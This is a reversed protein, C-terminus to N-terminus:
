MANIYWKIDAYCIKEKSLLVNFDTKMNVSETNLQILDNSGLVRILNTLLECDLTM